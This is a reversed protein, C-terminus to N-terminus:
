LTEEDEPDRVLTSKGEFALRGWRGPIGYRNKLTGVELLTVPPVERGDEKDEDTVYDAAYSLLGFVSDAEQESGGERLHDLAPRAKKIEKKADEYTKAKAM